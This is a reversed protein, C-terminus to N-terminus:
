SYNKLTFPNWKEIIEFVDAEVKVTIEDNSLWREVENLELSLFEDM